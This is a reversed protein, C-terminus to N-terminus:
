FMEKSNKADGDKQGVKKGMQDQMNDVKKMLSWLMIVKFELIEAM